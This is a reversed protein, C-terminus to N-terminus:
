EESTQVNDGAPNDCTGNGLEVGVLKFWAAKAAPPAINVKASDMRVLLRREAEGVGFTKTMDEIM